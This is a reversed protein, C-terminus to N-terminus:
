SNAFRILDTLDHQDAQRLAAIYERRVQEATEGAARRNSGWSFREGTLIFLAVDGMLRSHRGNGNPYPHIFVLRYSLRVALETAPYSNYELWADVDDFLARVEVPVEYHPGGINKDTKRYEGAWRWVKNFMRQHVRNAFEETLARRTRSAFCWRDAEAINAQEVENLEEKTTVWGPILGASEDINLPTQGYDYFSLDTV